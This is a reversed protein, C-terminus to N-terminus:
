YDKRGGPAGFAELSKFPIIINGDDAKKKQLFLAAIASLWYGPLIGQNLEGHCKEGQCQDKFETEGNGQWDIKSKSSCQEDYNDNIIIM